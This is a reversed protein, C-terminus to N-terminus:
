SLFRGDGRGKQARLATPPAVVQGALELKAYTSWVRLGDHGIGAVQAPSIGDGARAALIGIVVKDGRRVSFIPLTGIATQAHIDWYFGGFCLRCIWGDGEQQTLASFRSCYIDADLSPTLVSHTSYSFYAKRRATTELSNQTRQLWAEEGVGRTHLHVCQGLGPPVRSFSLNCETAPRARLARYGVSARTWLVSHSQWATGPRHRSGHM